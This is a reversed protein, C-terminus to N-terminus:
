LMMSNVIGELISRAEKLTRVNEKTMILYNNSQKMSLGKFHGDTAVYQLINQFIQTEFYISQANTIFYCNMKRNKLIVREFGLKKAIMRIRLGDFLENIQTPVPGFRDKLMANFKSIDSETELKDLETYLILREQINSVYSDPILMEIDTDIDVDRVFVHKKANEEQFLEKYDTEKLEVVAEELIKQYTEYGIDAIFGSQEAGLLNGAGRIDMDKMAIQFGSGLDSFEELTKIRKKAEPTLVSLPPAFLYCFARKNSRGVRGRLQHLDSMGFHHANNIIMTNANPIDLGTEIINTCVLVDHKGDIFALLTNELDHAEMQGHAVAVDVDPCLNKILDAVEHLSKVRNHVFFVQGGRQIEYYISEKILDDNFVRRETYIPQRNPPPTRIISLDRAAMLSFQLTRPIPTATLTLTDVNVQMSRLKEKAAVGFKQEEDIILLGLNKFKLGKNLLAHTGILIEVKGEEAGKFVENKEKTSRFRNIYEVTAGFEKLRESFTKYHQLALITTPVLIAVQKGAVVAKFAARIAVETKGFGVDGCILRDMPYDKEMDNKVDQTATLQDPTDEYIFSAELETQLYGDPPFAFGKSAKRKAYLKILEKAIDKVKAKTKRKLAKWADGGIKNLKPETGDKGVYRSIKHLSNIGVYLIDNNQYILRVTEQKHGNIEITELGSYKGIGHDIHTVFDGPQLEKLMKLSIAMDETFGQRIKYRHFREFIQHDTYCAVKNQHDIFGSHVSKHLPHFQVKVGMDEFINYFREIQKPNDTFIFNIYEKSTNEKLNEILLNFNKNFVPQASANFSVIKDTFFYQSKALTITHYDTIEEVIKTPYIFARENFIERLEEESKVAVSDAYAEVKEFCIQLKDVLLDPEKIWICTNDAFVKFISIKQDQRFKNNINPIISVLSIDQVSLQTTPNFTRISEVEIDFMEVRYPWENGYSFIDIIGGRISFQGPQYVFEVRDFGYMVLLEIMTNIDLTANKAISIKDKDLLTPDVAKEFIAEPYSILIQNKGKATHIKNITETRILVNNKDLEDYQLPRKFSDPFFHINKGEMISQLTNQVYAAEEKDAAIYIHSRKQQYFAGALAFCDLAGVLGQLQIQNPSEGSTLDNIEKIHRDNEYRDILEKINSM